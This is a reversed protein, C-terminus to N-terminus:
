KGNKDNSIIQIINTINVTKANIVNGNIVTNKDPTNKIKDYLWNSFVNLAIGGGIGTIFYTVTDSIEKEISDKTYVSIRLGDFNKNKFDTYFTKDSTQISIRKMDVM